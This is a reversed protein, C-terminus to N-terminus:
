ISPPLPAAFEAASRRHDGADVVRKTGGFYQLTRIWYLDAAVSQYALSLRRASNASTVYLADDEIAVAPFTRDRVRELWVSAAMFLAILLLAPGIRRIESTNM